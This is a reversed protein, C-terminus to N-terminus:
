ASAESITGDRWVTWHAVGALAEAVSRSYAIRAVPYGDRRLETEVREAVKACDIDLGDRLAAALGDDLAVVFDRDQWDVVKIKLRSDM